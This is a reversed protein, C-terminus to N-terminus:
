RVIVTGRMFAHFLCAYPYTGPKKVVVTASHGPAITGTDFESSTSTATHATQDYNTFTIRTGPTVTITDPDYGYNRIAVKAEGSQPASSAQATSTSTGAAPRSTKPASSSGCAAISLVLATAAAALRLKRPALRLKPKNTAMDPIRGHRAILDITIRQRLTASTPTYGPTQM